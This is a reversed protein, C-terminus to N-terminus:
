NELLQMSLKQKMNIKINVPLFLSATMNMEYDQESQEIRGADINFLERGTGQLGLIRYRGYLGFPGSQRFKGSYPVPWGSPSDESLSYSSTIVAVQGRDSQRVEELKYVVDRAKHMVMPTPISLQSEWSDGVTVGQVPNDISSIADWLFWQTALFDCVMDREKIRGRQTSTRFAKQAVERILAGLEVRDEIKGTPAVRITFSKGAFAKAADNKVGAAPNRTVNISECRAKITTFSYPNVDVASYAVVMEMRESYKTAKGQKTRSADEMIVETDRSSVFKYRLTQSQQFDVTLLNAGKATKALRQREPKRCAPTFSLVLATIFCIIVARNM